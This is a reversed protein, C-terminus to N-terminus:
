FMWCCRGSFPRLQLSDTCSLVRAPQMQMLISGKILLEQQPETRPRCCGLCGEARLGAQPHPPAPSGSLSTPPRAPSWAAASGLLGPTSAAGKWSCRHPGRAQACHSRRRPWLAEGAGCCVDQPQEETTFVCVREADATHELRSAFAGPRRPHSPGRLSSMGGRSAPLRPWPPRGPDTARPRPHVSAGEGSQFRREQTGSSGTM